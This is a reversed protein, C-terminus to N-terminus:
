YRGPTALRQGASGGEPIRLRQRIEAAKRQRKVAADIDGVARHTAAMGELAEAEDFPSSGRRAQALASAYLVGAERAAGTALLVAARGNRAAAEGQVDGIARFYSLATDLSDAAATYDATRCLARGLGSLAAAQGLRHGMERYLALAQRHAAIAAGDEGNSHRVRGIDNLANAIGVRHSASRYLDLAAEQADVAAALDGTRGLVRGLDNLATAQAIPDGARRTLQLALKHASLARDYEGTLQCVRGIGNLAGAQGLLDEVEDFLGLARQLYERAGVYDGTLWCIRGLSDLANAQGHRHNLREYLGLAERHTAAAASYEGLMRQVRGLGHRATAQGLLDGRQAADEAAASHLALAYTWPGEIYLYGHLAASIGVVHRRRGLERALDVSAVLNPLETRVWSAAAERTTLSPQHRPPTDVAVPFPVTRRALHRDASHATGLYYDLVRGLAAERQQASGEDARTRAHIRILDHFQYRDPVPQSLLNHDVLDELLRAAMRPSSDFLAAAAYVDFDPGPFLALRQFARQQAATLGSYSLSFVAELDREGDTLAKIRDHEDRLQHVLHRPAWAPRHRLLAAAIRVALPLQGCLTVIEEVAPSDLVTRGHGACTRFLTIADIPSLPELSLCYADDLAKLRKRGTILVLCGPAAPLLPVIQAESNANDLLILTRTGALRERYVAAREDLDRPIRGPPVGLARLLVELADGAERPPRDALRHALHIALTSKGVGGMGDIACITAEAATLDQLTTTTAQELLALEEVRGTFARSDAPLQRRPSSAGSHATPPQGRLAATHADRLAPGPKQGLSLLAQTCEAAVQAARVPEGDAALANVFTVMLSEREPHLPAVDQLLAVTRGPQGADLHLGALLELAELRRGELATARSRLWSTDLDAIATSNGHWAELATQLHIVAREEERNDCEQRARRLLANFRHIDVVEPDCEARFGPRTASLSVREGDVNLIKRLRSLYAVVLEEATAPPDVPWAYEILRQKPVTQGLHLLLVALISRQRTGGLKLRRGESLAEMTGLLRIEFMPQPAPM